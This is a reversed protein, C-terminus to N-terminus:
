RARAKRLLREASKHSLEDRLEAEIDALLEADTKAPKVRRALIDAIDKDQGAFWDLWEARFNNRESDQLAANLAAPTVRPAGEAGLAPQPGYACADYGKLGTRVDVFGFVFQRMASWLRERWLYGAEIEQTRPAPDELGGMEVQKAAAVM